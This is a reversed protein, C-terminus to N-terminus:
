SDSVLRILPELTGAALQINTRLHKQMTAADNCSAFIPSVGFSSSFSGYLTEEHHERLIEYEVGDHSAETFLLVFFLLFCKAVGAGSGV